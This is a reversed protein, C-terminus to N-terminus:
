YGHNSSLQPTVLKSPNKEEYSEADKQAWFATSCDAMQEVLTYAIHLTLSILEYSQHLATDSHRWRPMIFKWVFALIPFLLPLAVNPSIEEYKDHTGFRKKERVCM